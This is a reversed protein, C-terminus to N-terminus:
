SRKFAIPYKKREYLKRFIPFKQLKRLNLHRRAQRHHQNVFADCDTQVLDWQAIDYDSLWTRHEYYYAFDYNQLAQQIASASNGEAALHISLELLLHLMTDKCYQIINTDTAQGLLYKYGEICSIVVTSTKRNTQHTVSSYNNRYMFIPESRYLANQALYICQMRFREDENRYRDVLINNAKLFETRYFYASHHRYHEHAYKALTDRQGQERPNLKGRSFDQNTNYYAFSVLDWAGCSLTDHLQPTYVDPCYVDDQDLFATYTGSSLEIGRNRARAVGQNVQTEVRIRADQTALRNLIELSNDTSGDNICIIELDQCPQNLVSCICEELYAAGNYVPMIVSLLM